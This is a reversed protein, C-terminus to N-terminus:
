VLLLQDWLNDACCSTNVVCPRIVVLIYFSPYECFCLHSAFLDDHGCRDGEDSVSREEGGRRDAAAGQQGETRCRQFGSRTLKQSLHISGM